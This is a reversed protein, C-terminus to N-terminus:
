ALSSLFSDIFLGKYLCLVLTFTPLQTIDRPQPFLAPTIHPILHSPTSDTVSGGGRILGTRLGTMTLDIESPEDALATQIWYDLNRPPGPLEPYKDHFDKLAQPAHKFNSAPYEDLDDDFGLWKVRYKLKGHVL